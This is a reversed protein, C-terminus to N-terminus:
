AGLASIHDYVTTPMHQISAKGDQRAESAMKGSGDELM